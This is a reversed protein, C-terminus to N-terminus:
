AFIGGTYAQSVKMQPTTELFLLLYSSKNPLIFNLLFCFALYRFIFVAQGLSKTKM